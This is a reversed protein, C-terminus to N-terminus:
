YWEIKELILEGNSQEEFQKAKLECKEYSKPVTKCNAEFLVKVKGPTNAKQYLARVIM